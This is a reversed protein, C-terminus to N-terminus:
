FSKMLNQLHLIYNTQDKYDVIISYNNFSKSYYYKNDKNFSENNSFLNITGTLYDKSKTLIAFITQKAFSNSNEFEIPSNHNNKIANEFRVVLRNKSAEDEKNIAARVKYVIKTQPNYFVIVNAPEGAFDGRFARIGNPVLQNLEKYPRFGKSSIKSQFTNIDGNIPIGIFSLHEKNPSIKEAIKVVKEQESSLSDGEFYSLDVSEIVIDVLAQKEDDYQAYLGQSYIILLVFLIKKM